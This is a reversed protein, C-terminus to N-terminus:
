GKARSQSTPRPRALEDIRQQLEWLRRQIGRTKESVIRLSEVEEIALKQEKM